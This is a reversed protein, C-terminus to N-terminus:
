GLYAYPLAILLLSTVRFLQSMILLQSGLALDFIGAYAPLQHRLARVPTSIITGAILALATQKVELAGAHVLAGAAAMGSSFEAALSFVILGVAEVPFMDTSAMGSVAKRMWLFLGWENALFVLVFVPASYLVLRSFRQVFKQRIKVAPKVDEPAPNVVLASWRWEREQFAYRSYILVGVSRLCAAFFTIALYILGAAGALSSIIFFTTPLHLLYVPLGSNLLYTVIMEKRTLKGERYYGMLMANSATSSAFSTVFAAGSEDKLHGWRTLPRVWGAIKLSWGSHEIIEGVLLGIGLFVLLRALPWLLRHVIKDPTLTGPSQFYGVILGAFATIILIIPALYKTKSGARPSSNTTTVPSNM